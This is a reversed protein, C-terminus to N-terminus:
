PAPASETLRHPAPRLPGPFAAEAEAELRREHRSLLVVLAVIIIAALIGISLGLPGALKRWQEGLSYAGLAVFMAWAVAGATSAYLFKATPMFNAGALIAAISRLVPVFRALFVVKTGQRYFLYRGIKIRSDTLRLYRGYQVLLRYGFQRGIWFGVMNGVVAGAVAILIVSAINLEHTRGAYLAAAILVAEGPLPIGTSELAIFAAVIWVGYTSILHHHASLLSM